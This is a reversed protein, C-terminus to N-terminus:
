LCDKREEKTTLFMSSLGSSQTLYTQPWGSFPVAEPLTAPCEPFTSLIAHASFLVGAGIASLLPCTLLQHLPPFGQSYLPYPSAFPIYNLNFVMDNFIHQESASIVFSQKLGSRHLRHTCSLFTDSSASIKNLFITPNSFSLQNWPKLEWLAV